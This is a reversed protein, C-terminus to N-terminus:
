FLLSRVKTRLCNNAVTRKQADWFCLAECVAGKLTRHGKNKQYKSNKILSNEIAIIPQMPKSQM